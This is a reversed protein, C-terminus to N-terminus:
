QQEGVAVTLEAAVGPHLKIEIKYSGFAKIDADLVIKRKDIDIGFQSKIASAIEKSTVAGFLRGASGARATLRVTKGSLAAKAARANQEEVQAQHKKAEERGRLDNMAKQDAEVALARPFLYNRAYGDSVNVLEGAKGSGKIDAKLIVKM